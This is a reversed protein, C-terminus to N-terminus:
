INRDDCRIMSFLSLPYEKIVYDVAMQYGPKGPKRGLLADSSLYAVHAKIKNTDISETLKLVELPVEQAFTGISMLLFLISLKNIKM